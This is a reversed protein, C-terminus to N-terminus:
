LKMAQILNITCALEVKLCLRKWSISNIKDVEETNGPTSQVWLIDIATDRDRYEIGHFVPYAITEPGM